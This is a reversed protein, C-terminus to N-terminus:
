RGKQQTKRSQRQKKLVTGNREEGLRRPQGARKGRNALYEALNRECSERDVAWSTGNLRYGKLEGRLIMRVVGADTVGVINCAEPVSVWRSCMTRFKQKSFDQGMVSEHCVM